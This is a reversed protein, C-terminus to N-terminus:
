GNTCSTVCFRTNDDAYYGYPCYKVCSQSLEDAYYLPSPCGSIVGSMYVCINTPEYKHSKIPLTPCTSLCVRDTTEKYYGPRVTCDAVCM